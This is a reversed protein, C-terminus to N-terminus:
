TAAMIDKAAGEICSRTANALDAIKVRNADPSAGELGDVVRKCAVLATRDMEGAIGASLGALETVFSGNVGDFLLV